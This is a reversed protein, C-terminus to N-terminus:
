KRASPPLIELIVKTPATSTWRKAVMDGDAIQDLITIHLDPFANRQGTVEQKIGEPGKIEDPPAHGVFDEGCIEDVIEFNGKNFIEEFSRRMLAKNKEISM